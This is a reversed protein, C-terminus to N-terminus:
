ARDLALLRKTLQQLDNINVPKALAANVIGHNV